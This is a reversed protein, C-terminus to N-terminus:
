LFSLFRCIQHFCVKIPDDSYAVAPNDYGYLKISNAVGMLPGVREEHAKTLTLTQARIYKSDM